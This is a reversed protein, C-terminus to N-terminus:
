FNDQGEEHRILRHQVVHERSLDLGKVCPLAILTENAGKESEYIDKFIVEQHFCKLRDYFDLGKNCIIPQKLGKIRGAQNEVLVSVAHIHVQGLQKTIALVNKNTINATQISGHM